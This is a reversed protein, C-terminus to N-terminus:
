SVKNCIKELRPSDDRELSELPVGQVWGTLPKGNDWGAFKGDIQKSYPSYEKGYAVVTQYVSGDKDLIIQYVRNKTLGMIIVKTIAAYSMNVGRVREVCHNYAEFNKFLYQMFPTISYLVSKIPKKPIEDWKSDQPNGGEFTTGDVFTITYM